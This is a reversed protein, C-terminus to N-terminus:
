ARMVARAKDYHSYAYQEASIGDLFESVLSAKADEEAYELRWEVTDALAARLIQVCSEKLEVYGEEIIKRKKDISRKSLYWFLAGAVTFLLFAPMLAAVGVIGIFISAGLAIHHMPKLKVRSADERMRQDMHAELSQLLEAENAGDMTQGSWSDIALGITGPVAARNEMTMDDHAQRIWERSLAISLKQTSLSAQSVDPHMAFNTLLQTLSVRQELTKEVGFRSQAADKNGQEEVILSLLREDRRLPLEEDDFNTVLKDLMGDVAYAISQAPTVEQGFIGSIHSYVVEHLKAGHLSSDLQPWTPSYQRLFKYEDPKAAVPMVELAAKWQAHQEEVFGAKESLEAIWAEIQKSTKTRADPGFIGNTFGDILVVIERELEHPDQQGFYRDLWERSAKFRGGRRTVLAFFLSTKEDDLRLAEMMAKDALERKDNLWSALAILAPALWYGPAALMQEETANEITQRKVLSADVAKLIGTTRRRVEDYHGFKTELEQRVKVLRTEALQLNKDLQDKLVFDKFEQILQELRDKTNQVEANVNQVQGSVHAINGDLHTITSDLSALSSQIRRLDALHIIRENDTSM